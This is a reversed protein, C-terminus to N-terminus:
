KRKEKIMAMILEKHFENLEYKNIYEIMIKETSDLDFDFDVMNHEIAILQAFIIEIIKNKRKEKDDNM